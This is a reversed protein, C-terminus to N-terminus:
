DCRFGDLPRENRHMKGKLKRMYEACHEDVASRGARCADFDTASPLSSTMGRSPPRPSAIKREAMQTETAIKPTDARHKSKTPSKNTDTTARESAPDEESYREEFISMYAIGHQAQLVSKPMRKEVLAVALLRSFGEPSKPIYAAVQASNAREAWIDAAMRRLPNGEPTERFAYEVADEDVVAGLSANKAACQAVVLAKLRGLGFKDALVWLRFLEEWAPTFVNQFIM